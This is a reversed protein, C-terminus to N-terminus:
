TEAWGLPRRLGGWSIIRNSIETLPQTPRLAVTFNWSMMPFRVPLMGAAPRHLEFNILIQESCNKEKCSFRVVNITINRNIRSVILIKGAYIRSFVLVCKINM